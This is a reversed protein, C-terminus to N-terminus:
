QNNDEIIMNTFLTILWYVVAGWFAAGFGTIDFGKVISSVILFMVANIVLTFLGLTLINVPLTLIILIPRIVANILGLVLAAILASYFNEFSIGPIIYSVLILALTNIIWRLLLYM